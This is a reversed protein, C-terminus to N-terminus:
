AHAAGHRSRVHTFRAMALQEHARAEAFAQYARRAEASEAGLLHALAGCANSALTVAAHALDAARAVVVLEDSQRAEEKCARAQEAYEVVRRALERGFDELSASRLSLQILAADEVPHLAM